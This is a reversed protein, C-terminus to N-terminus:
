LQLSQFRSWPLIADARPAQKSKRSPRIRGGWTIGSDIEAAQERHHILEEM